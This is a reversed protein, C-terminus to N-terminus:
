SIILRLENKMLVTIQARGQKQEELYKNSFYKVQEVYKEMKNLEKKKQIHDLTHVLEESDDKLDKSEVEIQKAIQLWNYTKM